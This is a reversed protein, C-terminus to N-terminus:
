GFSSSCVSAPAVLFWCGPSTQSQQATPTRTALHLLRSTSFILVHKMFIKKVAYECYPGYVDASWWWNIFLLFIAFSWTYDIYTSKCILNAFYCNSSPNSLDFNNNQVIQSYSISQLFDTVIIYFKISKQWFVPFQRPCPCPSCFASYNNKAWHWEPWRAVAAFSIWFLIISHCFWGIQGKQFDFITM